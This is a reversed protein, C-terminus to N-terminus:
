YLFHYMYEQTFLMPAIVEIKRKVDPPFTRAMSIKNAASANLMILNEIQGKMGSVIDIDHIFLCIIANKHRGTTLIDMLLSKYANALRMPSGQFNVNKQQSKLSELESSVDDLILLIKPQNSVFSRVAYLEEFSLKESNQNAKDVILRVMTECFFANTDNLALHRNEDSYSKLQENYINNKEIELTKIRMSASEASYLKRLISKYKGPDYRHGELENKMETWIGNLIDFKPKRRFARPIVSIDGSKGSSLINEESNTIYIMKTCEESYNQFLDLALTTKGSSTTGCIIYPPQGLQFIKNIPKKSLKIKENDV